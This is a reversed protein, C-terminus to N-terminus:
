QYLFPTRFMWFDEARPSCSSPRTARTFAQAHACSPFASTVLVKTGDRRSVHHLCVGKLPLVYCPLPIAALFFRHLVPDGLLSLCSVRTQSSLIAPQLFVLEAPRPLSQFLGAEPVIPRVALGARYTNVAEKFPLERSGQISAADRRELMRGVFWPYPCRTRILFVSLFSLM